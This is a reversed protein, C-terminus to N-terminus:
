VQNTFFSRLNKWGANRQMVVQLHPIPRPKIEVFFRVSDKLLIFVGTATQYREDNEIIASLVMAGNAARRPEITKVKGSVFSIEQQVLPKASTSPYPSVMEGKSNLAQIPKNELLEKGECPHIGGKFGALDM